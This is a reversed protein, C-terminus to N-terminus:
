RKMAHTFTELDKLGKAFEDFIEITGAADESFRGQRPIKEAENFPTSIIGIPNFIINQNKM